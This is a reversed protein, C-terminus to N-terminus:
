TLGHHLFVLFQQNKLLQLDLPDIDVGDFLVEYHFHAATSKRGVWGSFRNM